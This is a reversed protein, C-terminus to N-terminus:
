RQLTTFVRTRIPRCGGTQDRGRNLGMVSLSKPDKSTRRSGQSASYEPSNDISAPEGSGASSTSRETSCCDSAHVGTNGTVPLRDSANRRTSGRHVATRSLMGRPHEFEQSLVRRRRLTIQSLTTSCQRQAQCRNSHRTAETCRNHRYIAVRWSPGCAVHFESGGLDGM